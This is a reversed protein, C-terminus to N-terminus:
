GPSIPKLRIIKCKLIQLLSDIIRNSLYSNRLRLWINDNRQILFVPQFTQVLM